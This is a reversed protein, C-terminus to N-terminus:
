LRMLARREAQPKCVMCVGVVRGQEDSYFSLKKQKKRCFSCTQKNMKSNKKGHLAMNIIKSTEVKDRIKLIIKYVLLLIVFLIIVLVIWKM